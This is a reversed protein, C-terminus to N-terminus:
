LLRLNPTVKKTNRKSHDHLTVSDCILADLEELISNMTISESDILRAEDSSYECIVLAPSNQVLMDNAIKQDKLFLQKVFDSKYDQRFIEVDLGVEYALELAAEKNFQNIDGETLEQLRMLFHRGIRKGQLCAAKYALSAHYVKNFVLNRRDLDSTPINLQNMFNEVIRQNHFPLIHLDIDAAVLDILKFVEQECQYCQTGLPNVFLFIEFVKSVGNHRYEIQYQSM